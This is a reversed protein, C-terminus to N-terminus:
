DEHDKHHKDYCSECRYVDCLHYYEDYEQRVMVMQNGCNPCLM